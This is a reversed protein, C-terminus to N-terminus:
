WGGDVNWRRAKNDNRVALNHAKVYGNKLQVQYPVFWGRSFVSQFPAGISVVKLGGYIEKASSPLASVPYVMLVQQWDERALGDFFIEAAERATQPVRGTTPMKDPQVYTVVHEPLAIAFLAPDLMENYRVENVEFVVVDGQGQPHMIVQMGLLRKTAPDLRYVRTQNASSITKDQIWDNGVGRGPELAVRLVTERVNNHVEEGVTVQYGGAQANEAENELIRDADLLIKMWELFGAKPGGHSVSDPKIFLTSSVGDMVVVRGPKEVRWKAPTSYQRWIEVPVFDAAPNIYEFNERPTTRMRAILHVSSLNSMAQVSQALLQIGAGSSSKGAFRVLSPVLLIMVLAAVAAVSFRPILIRWLNRPAESKAIQNMVREKFDPSAQVRLPPEIADFAAQIEELERVCDPCGRAHTRLRNADEIPTAPDWLEVLRKQAERCNM